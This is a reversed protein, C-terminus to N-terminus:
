MAEVLLLMGDLGILFNDLMAKQKRLFDAEVIFFCLTLTWKKKELTWKKLWGAGPFM